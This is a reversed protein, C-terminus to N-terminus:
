CIKLMLPWHIFFNKGERSIKSNPNALEQDIRALAEFEVTYKRNLRLIESANGGDFFPFGFLRDFNM